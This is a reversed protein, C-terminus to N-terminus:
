HAMSDLALDGGNAQRILRHYRNLAITLWQSKAGDPWIVRVQATKVQGLGFHAPGIIGGAHGGGVTVERSYTRTATRVEIWAGIAQLNAGNQYLEIGIWNGTKPSINQYIELPARRNVVAIDLRGDRNFDMIAAGRGRHLSAIGAQDGMEIFRGQETAVLLNNPDRMASGPMHEVNGKSVFIDDLGDNQFDGFAVHWGTSPRGDGGMYPRHATIGMEYPADDYIPHTLSQLIHLKQDAMSTLYIEPYGNGTIDRSAIGMGWIQFNRWGDRASYLRPKAAMSWLQESGDRVYYHRDNSIRLDAVGNRNWDSFLLSLACYGPSLPLPAVYTLRSPRYLMTHDCAEFPGDPNLIDIYNGFALTPLLNQKEWTASFATTWKPQSQFGLTSFDEFNCDGVGRMLRNKQRHLLVLDMNGDSDIDLPYAGIVDTINLIAPTAQHFSIKGKPSSQNRLLQAPNKGGAAYLEPFNDGDCDFGALGGGVFFHWDGAYSHNPAPITHFKPAAAWLTNALCGFLILFFCLQTYQM